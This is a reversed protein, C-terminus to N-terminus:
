GWFCGHKDELVINLFEHITKVFLKPTYGHWKLDARMWFIKWRKKTHVWTTKAIPTERIIEPKDWRPRLEFILVSQDDIRYGIDLKSRIKERPRNKDLWNELAEIIEVTHMVDLAM